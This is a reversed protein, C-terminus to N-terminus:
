CVVSRRAHRWCRDTEPERWNWCFRSGLRKTCRRARPPRGGKDYGDLMCFVRVAELSLRPWRRRRRNRWWRRWEPTRHLAAVEAKIQEGFRQVHRRRTRESVMHGRM